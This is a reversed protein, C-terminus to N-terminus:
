THRPEDIMKQIESIIDIASDKPLCLVFLEQGSVEAQTALDAWEYILERAEKRDKVSLTM